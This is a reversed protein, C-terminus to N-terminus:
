FPPNQTLPPFFQKELMVAPILDLTIGDIKIKDKLNKPVLVARNVGKIKALKILNRYDSFNIKEQYKVEVPLVENETKLVFDVEFDKFRHFKVEGKAKLLNFVYNEVRLSMPVMAMNTSELYVKKGTRASRIPKIPILIMIFKLWTRGIRFM